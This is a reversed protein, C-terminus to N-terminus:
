QNLIRWHPKSSCIWHICLPTKWTWDSGRPPSITVYPLKLPNWVWKEEAKGFSKKKGLINEFFIKRNGFIKDFVISSTAVKSSRTARIVSTKSFSYRVSPIKRKKKGAWIESDLDRNKLLFRNYRSWWWSLSYSGPSSGKSFFKIKIFIFSANSGNHWKHSPRLSNLRSRKHQLASKRIKKKRPENKKPKIRPSTGDRGHPASPEPLDSTKHYTLSCASNQVPNQNKEKRSSQPAPVVFIFHMHTFFIMRLFGLFDFALETATVVCSKFWNM